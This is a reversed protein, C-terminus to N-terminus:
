YTMKGSPSLTIELNSSEGSLVAASQKWADIVEQDLRYSRKTKYFLECDGVHYDISALVDSHKKGLYITFRELHPMLRIAKGAALFLKQTLVNPRRRERSSLAGETGTSSSSHEFDSNSEGTDFDFLWQGAPTSPSLALFFICMPIPNTGEEDHSPWVEFFQTVDLCIGTVLLKQLRQSIVGLSASLPDVTRGDPIVSQPTRKHNRFNYTSTISLCELGTPISPIARALSERLRRRQRTPRNKESDLLRINLTKLRPLKSALYCFTAPSIAHEYSMTELTSFLNLGPLTEVSTGQLDLHGVAMKDTPRSTLIFLVEAEPILDLPKLLRFLDRIAREFVLKDRAQNSDVGLADKRSVLVRLHVIRAYSLRRSTVLSNNALAARVRKPTLYLNWFTHQEVHVQWAKSVTAYAAISEDYRLRRPDDYFSDPLLRSALASVIRATLEYPLNGLSM